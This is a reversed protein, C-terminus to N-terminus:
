TISGNGFVGPDVEGYQIDGNLPCKTAAESRLVEQKARTIFPKTEGTVRTYVHVAGDEGRNLEYISQNESGRGMLVTNRCNKDYPGIKLLDVVAELKERKEQFSGQGFWIDESMGTYLMTNLGLEKAKTLYALAGEFQLLPEGGSLTFGTTENDKSYKSFFEEASMAVGGEKPHLNPSHCGPCNYSCGQTVAVLRVGPGNMVSRTSIASLVLTDQTINSM